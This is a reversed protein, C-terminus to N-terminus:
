KAKSFDSFCKQIIIFISYTDRLIRGARFLPRKENSVTSLNAQVTCKFALDVGNTVHKTVFHVEISYSIITYDLYSAHKSTKSRDHLLFKMDCIYFRVFCKGNIHFSIHFVQSRIRFSTKLTWCLRSRILWFGWDVRSVDSTILLSFHSWTWVWCGFSWFTKM